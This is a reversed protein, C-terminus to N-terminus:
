VRGVVVLDSRRRQIAANTVHATRRGFDRVDSDTFRLPVWGDVVVANQRRRDRGFASRSGHSAWGDLEAFLREDPWALDLVAVLRGGIRVEHQRVPLPVGHDVLCQWYVTELDSDTPTAPRNDLVEGPLREAPPLRTVRDRILEAIRLYLPSTQEQTSM